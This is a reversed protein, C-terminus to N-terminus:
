IIGRVRESAIKYKNANLITKIKRMENSKLIFYCLIIGITFPYGSLIRKVEMFLVKELIQELIVLRSIQRNEHAALLTSLGSYNSGLVPKLLVFIDSGAYAKELTDKKLNYGRAILYRMAREPPFKYFDRFRILWVINQLDIEVGVLRDANNRDRGSLKGLKELLNRYYFLDLEIELDFLSKKQEVFPKTDSIIKVYPTDSLYSEIENFSEANLIRVYPIDHVITDTILYSGLDMISRSRITKDFFLRIANKLNDIEFRILLATVIHWNDGKLYKRIEVFLGIEQELLEKEAMKLDGTKEYTELMVTFSTNKLIAMAESLTKTRLIQDFFTDTLMKSLRARLKANIFAYRNVDRIM